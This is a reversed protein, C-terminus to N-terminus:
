AAREHGIIDAQQIAAYESAGIKIRYDDYRGFWVVDGARVDVIADFEGDRWKGAGVAVVIGKQAAKEKVEDAIDPLWIIGIRRAEHILRVLIRDHMM